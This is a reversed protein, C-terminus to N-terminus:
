CLNMSLAQRARLIFEPSHKQCGGVSHKEIEIQAWEITLPLASAIVSNWSNSITSNILSGAM